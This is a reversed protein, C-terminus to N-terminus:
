APWTVQTLRTQEEVSFKVGGMGLGAQRHGGFPMEDVRWATHDNVVVSMAPLEHAWRELETDSRGFVSAAFHYPSSELEAVLAREDRWRLLNVVPGFAEERMLLAGAPTDALVTPTLYSGAREEPALLLKAGLAQAEHIWTQLRVKEGPRILPGVDTDAERADGTKLRRAESVFLRCFADFVLEHLYIKQTSICVQGAHYFAGRLLAGVAQPLDADPLVVAAATGGHELALRTGPALLRRLQWGVRASGIFSVYQFEPRAVLAEIEPVEAHVLQLTHEPLLPALHDILWHACHPAAPSPKLVVSNGAALATGVQHALLNLPHNFASLALVPGIPVRHFRFRKAAAAPSSAAFIGSPPAALELAERACLEFTLAARQVELRADKLPKGGSAAIMQALLESARTIGEAITRLSKARAPGSVSQFHAHGALARQAVRAVDESTLQEFSGLPTGDNPSFVDRWPRPAPPLALPYRANPTWM